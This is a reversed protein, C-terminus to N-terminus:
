GVYYGIDHRMHQEVTLPATRAPVRFVVEGIYVYSRTGDEWGVHLEVQPSGDVYHGIAYGKRGTKKHRLRSWHDLVLLGSGDM